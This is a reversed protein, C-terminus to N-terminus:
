HKDTWYLGACETNRRLIWKRLLLLPIIGHPLRYIMNAMWYIFDPFSSEQIIFDYMPRALATTFGWFILYFYIYRVNVNIFIALACFMDVLGVIMLFSLANVEDLGTITTTMSIFSHPVQHVGIALMGHGIFTLSVLTKLVTVLKSHNIRDIRICHFLFLPLGIKMSNELLLEPIFRAQVFELFYLGFFIVSELLLLYHLKFKRIKSIPLVIPLSCVMLLCGLVTELDLVTEFPLNKSFKYAILSLGNGIGLLFVSFKILAVSRGSGFLNNKITM